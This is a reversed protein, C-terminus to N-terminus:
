KANMYQLKQAHAQLCYNVASNSPRYTTFEINYQVLSLSFFLLWHLHARILVCACQQQKEEVEEEEENKKYLLMFKVRHSNNDNVVVIIVRNQRCKLASIIIVIIKTNKKRMARQERAREWERVCVLPAVAAVLSRWALCSLLKYCSLVVIKMHMTHVQLRYDFARLTFHYAVFLLLTCMKTWKLCDSNNLM